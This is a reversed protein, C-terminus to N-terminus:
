RFAHLTGKKSVVYLVGNAVIPNTTAGGPVQTTGILSGDEPNFSRIVGDSSAVILRGGAMIPGYNAHVAVRSRPRRDRQFGPLDTEWIQTGDESNLRVLQARDGVLYVSDSTVWVPGMAGHDATWEREGSDVNLAVTRGSHNGAYVRNGRIVPDGTIDDFKAAAIGPREGAVAANWLRLGGKRFAAQLEGSGFPFIVLKDNVAPAAGGFVNSVDALGDIQWRIRGTEAEIAWATTDGSVLYVLESTATPTGTGTADLDQSWKEQGTATDLAVVKGFASTVYLTNGNLALGGGTTQDADDSLPTIDRTWLTAGTTSTATVLTRSDLTFIRTGDTVPDANVRARRKDGQGIPASWIETLSQALAANDTRTSPSGPRQVWSTNRVSTPISAAQSTNELAVSDDGDALIARPTFREGPLIVEEEACATVFLTGTLAAMWGFSQVSGAKMM